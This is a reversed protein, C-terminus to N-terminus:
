KLNMCREVKCAFISKTNILYKEADEKSAIGYIIEPEKLFPYDERDYKYSNVKIRARSIYSDIKGTKLNVYWLIM